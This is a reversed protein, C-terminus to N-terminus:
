AHERDNVDGHDALNACQRRIDPFAGGAKRIAEAAQKRGAAVGAAFTARMAAEVDSTRWTDADYYAEWGLAIAEQRLADLSVTPERTV